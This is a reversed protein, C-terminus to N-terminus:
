AVAKTLVERVNDANMEDLAFRRISRSKGNEADIDILVACLTASGEAPDFGASVKEVFRKLQQPIQLGVVSDYCGTMGIDTIYATGGPLVREDATPIHTHTGFVASVRGDLYWALASKELPAQAHFDVLVTHLGKPKNRLVKDAVAFPCPREVGMYMNGILNLVGVQTDNAELVLWGSGPTGAADNHPRLMRSERQILRLAETQDWVHNGNTLVDVGLAFLEDAIAPTIGVGSDHANEANAIVLDPSLHERLQPLHSALVRRGPLGVIDGIALVYM